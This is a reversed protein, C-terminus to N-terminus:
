SKLAGLVEKAHGKPNVKSFIKQVIGEPNVVLTTREVGMYKRGYMSKEKWVGYAQCIERSEDSVLDFPLGYQQSFKEHSKISDPSIGLIVVNEKKFNPYEDRFECAETTCGSTMDKPYFFLVVTKGRNKLLEKFSPAKRGETLESM